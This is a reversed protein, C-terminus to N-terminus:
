IVPHAPVGVLTGPGDFDHVVVAGAGVIVHDGLAVSGLVSAGAGLQVHDGLVPAGDGITNGGALIVDRGLTARAGIVCGLQPHLIRLGPGVAAKYDLESTVFLRVLPMLPSVGIRVARWRDGLQLYAARNLRYWCIIAFSESFVVPILRHPRGKTM